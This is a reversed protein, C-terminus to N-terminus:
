YIFKVYKESIYVHMHAYKYICYMIFICLVCVYKIYVFKYKPHSEDRIIM